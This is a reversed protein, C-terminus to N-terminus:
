FLCGLAGRLSVRTGQSAQESEQPETFGLNFDGESYVWVPYGLLGKWNQFAYHLALRAENETASVSWLCIFSEPSMDANGCKPFPARLTSGTQSQAMPHHPKIFPAWQPETPGPLM